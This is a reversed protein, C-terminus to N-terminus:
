AATKRIQKERFFPPSLEHFSKIGNYDNHSFAVINKTNAAKNLSFFVLFILLYNKMIFNM